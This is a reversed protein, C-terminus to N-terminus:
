PKIVNVGTVGDQYRVMLSGHVLYDCVRHGGGGGARAELLAEHFGKLSSLATQSVLWGEGQTAGCYVKRPELSARKLKVTRWASSSPNRGLSPGDKGRRTNQTSNPRSNHDNTRKPPLLPLDKQALRKTHEPVQLGQNKSVTTTLLWPTSAKTPFHLINFCPLPHLQNAAPKPPFPCQQGWCASFRTVLTPALVRHAAAPARHVWTRGGSFPSRLASGEPNLRTEAGEGHPPRSNRGDEPSWDRRRVPSPPSLM